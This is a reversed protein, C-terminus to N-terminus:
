GQESVTCSVGTARQQWGQQGQSPLSQSEEAGTVQGPLYETGCGIRAAMSSEELISPGM